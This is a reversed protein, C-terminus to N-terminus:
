KKLRSFRVLFRKLFKKYTALHGKKGGGGNDFM